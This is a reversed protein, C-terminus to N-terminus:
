KKAKKLAQLMAEEMTLNGSNKTQSIPIEVSENVEEILTISFFKELKRALAFSPKFHGSEIKHIISEKENLSKAVQEQKLNKSERAQKILPGYNKVVFKNANPDERKVRPRHSTFNSVRKEPDALRQGYSACQSCVSMVTGELKVKVPSIDKKGCMDCDVM